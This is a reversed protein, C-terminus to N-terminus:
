ATHTTHSEAQITPVQETVQFPRVRESQLPGVGREPALIGVLGPGPGLGGGAPRAASAWQRVNREDRPSPRRRSM